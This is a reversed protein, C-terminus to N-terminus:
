GRQELFLLKITTQRLGNVKGGTLTGSPMMPMQLQKASNTLRTKLAAIMDADFDTNEIMWKIKEEVLDVINQSDAYKEKCINLIEFIVDRDPNGWGSCPSLKFAGDAPDKAYPLLEVLETAARFLPMTLESDGEGWGVLATPISKGQFIVFRSRSQNAVGEYESKAQEMVDPTLTIMSSMSKSDVIDLSQIAQAPCFASLPCTNLWANGLM